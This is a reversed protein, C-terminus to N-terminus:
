HSSLLAVCERESLSGSGCGEDITKDKDEPFKKVFWDKYKVFM